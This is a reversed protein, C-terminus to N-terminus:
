IRDARMWLLHDALVLWVMAELVPIARTVIFPDHRGKKAVDLISSTPKFHIRLNIEEGTSIGGRIGGYVNSMTQAHFDTGQIQSSSIGAGLEVATSAGVSMMAACLDGKLKHFVPQGLNATAGKIVVTAVGGLSNGDTKAQLIHDQAQTSKRSPFRAAFSDINEDFAKQEEQESLCLSGVQSTYGVVKMQPALQACLMQAFSGALVRCVTERGSSRGGGRPDTHGFKNKWVDDAHGARPNIKVEDYDAPRTNNNKIVIAIPTGLTKGEYIGSLIEPSDLEIRSTTLESQGPRRRALNKLLLSENYALGSPCGDIVVGMSPGHSEGFSVFKFRSGFENAGM